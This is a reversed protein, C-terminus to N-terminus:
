FSAKIAGVVRADCNNRFGSFAFCENSSLNTDYYRVDASWHDMFGLTVGANWYTYSPLTEEWQYGIVSSVSPTFFNFLKGSIAYGIAGEVANSNGLQGFTNPSWWDHVGLSLQSNVAWTAGSSAEFYDLENLGCKGECAGPYTYYLAELNFTVDKWKPAIGAYYDLEVTGIDHGDVAGFDVNSGWITAYFMGYTLDFEPQVAPRQDTNSVSRFMYDTAITASGSLTLKNDAAQAATALGAALAAGLVCTKIIGVERRAM